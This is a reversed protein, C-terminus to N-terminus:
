GAGGLQGALPGFLSSLGSGLAGSGSAAAPTGLKGLTSLGSSLPSKSGGTAKTLAGTVSSLGPTGPIPLGLGSPNDADNFYTCVTEDALCSYIVQINFWQGDSTIAQYAALGQPLTELSQALQAQHQELVNAVVALNDITGTLNSRNAQILGGFEGTVKGLNTVMEDLLSNRSALSHAVTTLNSVLNSVDSNHAALASTVEDYEDIVAGIESNDAGLTSSVKAANGLLSGITSENGELAQSIALVFANAEKPDISQLVPSLTSLFQGVSADTVDNALGLTGGPQLWGGTTGPYLYLVKDGIVDLWRLGVGTSSRVRVGNNLGFGVVAHGHDVGVSNVQGVTVGAIKVDDGGRLGTADTLLASYGSRHAFLTINGVRVALGVTVVACAAAFIILKVTTFTLAKSWRM